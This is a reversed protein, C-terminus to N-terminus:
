PSFRIWKLRDALTRMAVITPYAEEKAKAQMASEEVGDDWTKRDM